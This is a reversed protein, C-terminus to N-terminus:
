SAAAYRTLRPAPAVSAPKGKATDLAAAAVDAINADHECAGPWPMVIRAGPFSQTASRAADIMPGPSMTGIVLTRADQPRAVLEVDHEGLAAEIVGVNKGPHVIATPGLAGGVANIAHAIAVRAAALGTFREWLDRTMASRTIDPVRSIAEALGLGYGALVGRSRAIHLYRTAITTLEQRLQERPAYRMAVTANNRVLRRLIRGFNRNSQVKEHVIQFRRDFGIRWGRLILKACLDYEEAYYDFSADYGGVAIFRDRRIIAGCGTIVEPLGGAEHPTARTDINTSYAGGGLFIEAGIAATDPSASAITDLIGRANLPYSDDDLMVIWDGRAESVGVNRAAASRNENLRIVRVPVANSLVRPCRLPRSSANDVVVVEAREGLHDLTGIRALTQNLESPRDRTPMVYSLM